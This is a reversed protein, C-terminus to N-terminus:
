RRRPADLPSPHARRRRCLLRRPATTPARMRGPPWPPIDGIAALVNDLFRTYESGDMSDTWLDALNFIALGFHDRRRM